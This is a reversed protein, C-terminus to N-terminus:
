HPLALTKWNPHDFYRGYTDLAQVVKLLGSSRQKGQQKGAAMEAGSMIEAIIGHLQADAKPDLKCNQVIYGVQATVEKAFADYDTDAAKGSHVLPLAVSASLRIADMGQRLPEDIAWKKGANLELKQPAKGHAHTAAATLSTLPAALIAALLLHNLLKM